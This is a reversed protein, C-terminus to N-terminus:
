FARNRSKFANEYDFNSSYALGSPCTGCEFTPEVRDVGFTVLEDEADTWSISSYEGPDTCIKINMGPVVCQTPPIGNWEVYVSDDYDFVWGSWPNLIARLGEACGQCRTSGVLGDTGAACPICGLGDLTDRYTNVPCPICESSGHETAGSYGLPCEQCVITNYGVSIHYADCMDCQVIDSRTMIYGPECLCEADTERGVVTCAELMMGDCGDGECACTEQLSTSCPPCGGIGRYYSVACTISCDGTSGSEIGDTQDNAGGFNCLSCGATDEIQFQRCPRFREDNGCQIDQSCPVCVDNCNPGDKKLNCYGNGNCKQKWYGEKCVRGRIGIYESGPDDEHITCAACSRHSEAYQGCEPRYRGEVCSEPLNCTLCIGDDSKYFHSVCGWECEVSFVGKLEANTPYSVGPNDPHEPCTICPPTDTLGIATCGPWYEGEPCLLRDNPHSCNKCVYPIIESINNVSFMTSPFGTDDFVKGIPCDVAGRNKCLTGTFTHEELRYNNGNCIEPNIECIKGENVHCNECRCTACMAAEACIIMEGEECGFECDIVQSPTSVLVYANYNEDIKERQWASGCMSTDVYKKEYPGSDCKVCLAGLTEKSAPPTLTMYYRAEDTQAGEGICRLRGSYANKCEMEVGGIMDYEFVRVGEVVTSQCLTCTLTVLNFYFGSGCIEDFTKCEAGELIKTDTDVGKMNHCETIRAAFCKEFMDPSLKNDSCKGWIAENSCDTVVLITRADRCRPDNKTYCAIIENGRWIPSTTTQCKTISAEETLSTPPTITLANAYDKTQDWRSPLSIIGDVDTDTFKQRNNLNRNLDCSSKGRLQVMICTVRRPSTYSYEVPSVWEDMVWDTPMLTKTDCGWPCGGATYACTKCITCTEDWWGMRLLLITNRNYTQFFLMDRVRNNGTLPRHWLGTQLQGGKGQNYMDNGGLGAYGFSAWSGDAPCIFLENFNCNELRNTTSVSCVVDTYSPSVIISDYRFIQDYIPVTQFLTGAAHMRHFYYGFNGSTEWGPPVYDDASGGLVLHTIIAGNKNTPHQYYENPVFTESQQTHSGAVMCTFQIVVICIAITSVM